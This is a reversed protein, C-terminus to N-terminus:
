EQNDIKRYMTEGSEPCIFTEVFGEAVMYNLTQQVSWHVYEEYQSETLLEFDKVTVESTKKGFLPHSANM